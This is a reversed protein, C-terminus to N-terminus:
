LNKIQDLLGSIEEKYKNYPINNLVWRLAIIQEKSPKWRNQPQIRDKLSKLWDMCEKVETIDAYYKKAEDLYKCIRQVKFTDEENWISSVKEGNMMKTFCYDMEDKGEDIVHFKKLEKKKFDFEYGTEKMKSFLFDRQEKTAPKVNDNTWLETKDSIKFEGNNTIGCYATLYKIYIHNGAYIFPCDDESILVDGAKADGITWLHMEDQKSIPFYNYNGKGDSIQYNKTDISDIHWVDGLKNVVWDGVNFKNLNCNQFMKDYNTATLIGDVIHKQKIKKLEKKNFDFEYGADKIKAFLIERQEKTAPIFASSAWLSFQKARFTNVFYDCYSSFLYNNQINKFILIADNAKNALIDGEKADEISWLRLSEDHLVCVRFSGGHTHRLIYYGNEIKEIQYISQHKNNFVVWDGINFKLKPEINEDSISIGKYTKKFWESNKIKDYRERISSKENQKELACRGLATIDQCSHSPQEKKCKDCVMEKQESQKELWALMEEKSIGNDFFSDPQTYIWGRIVKRIRENENLEPFIYELNERTIDGCEWLQTARIIEEEHKNKDNM